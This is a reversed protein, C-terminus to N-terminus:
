PSNSHSHIQSNKSFPLASPEGKDLQQDHNGNDADKDSQQKRGNLGSPFRSATRLARIIQLLDSQRQVIIM